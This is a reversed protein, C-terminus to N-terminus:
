RCLVSPCPMAEYLRPALHQVSATPSPSTMMRPPGLCDDWAGTPNHLEGRLLSCCNSESLIKQTNCIILSWCITVDELMSVLRHKVLLSRQAHSPLQSPFKM